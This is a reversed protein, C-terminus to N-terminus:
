FGDATTQSKKKSPPHRKKFAAKELVAGALPPPVQSTSVKRSFTGRQFSIGRGQLRRGMCFVHPLRRPHLTGSPISIALSIALFSLVRIHLSAGWLSSFGRKGQMAHWPLLQPLTTHVAPMPNDPSSPRGWHRKWAMGATPCCSCTQCSV